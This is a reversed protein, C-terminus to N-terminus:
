KKEIINAIDIVAQKIDEMLTNSLKLKKMVNFHEICQNFNTYPDNFLSEDYQYDKASVSIVNEDEIFTIDRGIIGTKSAGFAFAILGFTDEKQNRQLKDFRKLVNYIAHIDAKDSDSRSYEDIMNSYAEDLDNYLVDIHSFSNNFFGRIKEYREVNKFYNIALDIEKDSKTKLMNSVEKRELLDIYNQVFYNKFEYYYQKTESLYKLLILLAKKNELFYVPDKYLSYSIDSMCFYHSFLLKEFANLDNKSKAFRSFFTRFFATKCSPSFKENFIVKSIDKHDLSFESVPIENIVTLALNTFIQSNNDSSIYPSNDRYGSDCKNIVKITFDIHDM